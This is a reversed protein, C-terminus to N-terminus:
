AGAIIAVGILAMAVGLYQIHRLREGLVVRALLITAVPYLSGLVATLSLLGQGAAWSYMLNASVDGVGAVATIALDRGRPRLGRSRLLVPGLVLVSCLRMVLVTMIPSSQGGIGLGTFAIGFGLGAGIALIIPVRGGAARLEPGGSLCVGLVAVAVGLLQWGSPEDGRLLGVSIPVLVGLSAIPAVVGMVGRALAAYFAVLGTAGALAAALAWPLYSWDSTWANFVTAAVLAM